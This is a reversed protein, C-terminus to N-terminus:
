LKPGTVGSKMGGSNVVNNYKQFQQPIAPFNLFM